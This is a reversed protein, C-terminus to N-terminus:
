PKSDEVEWLSIVQPAERLTAIVSCYKEDTLEIARRVADHDINEGQIVHKVTISTFPRPWTGPPIRQGEVEVRYSTVRQRKKELINVVDMASCAAIASLLTEVPTPGQSKAGEEPYADMLLSNGSPTEARFLM